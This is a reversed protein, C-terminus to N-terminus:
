NNKRINNAMNILENKDAEGILYFLFDRTWAISTFGDKEVLLAESNDISINQVNANETDIRLDSNSNLYQTFRITQGQKNAYYIVKFMNNEEFNIIKFGYPIYNPVYGDWEPPLQEIPTKAKDNNEDITQISTYQEQINTIINLAKVRLAQVSAVVITFSGLIVLLFIAINPLYKITKKRFIKFKNIKDYKSILNKMKRNFEPSLIVEPDQDDEVPNESIINEVHCAAAYEFLGELMKEKAQEKVFQQQRM